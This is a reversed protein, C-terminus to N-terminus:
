KLAKIFKVYDKNATVYGVATKFRYIKGYKKPQAYFRSGKMFRVARKQQAKLDKYAYVKPAVVEYLGKTKYYEPEGMTGVVGNKLDKAFQRKSIGWKALYGYPDVHDGGFHQTVWKHTKVGETTRGGKDLTLPIGYKKAYYRILWIYRKYSENFRAQTDVHALEVQMPSYPNADLAGWAVYGPQGVQFIATDDVIFHTYAAGYHGKMYAAENRASHAGKNADNGTDHAIIFRKVAMRGDGETAGLAYDNNIPYGM